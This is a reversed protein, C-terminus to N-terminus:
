RYLTGSYYGIYMGSSTQEGHTYYLTGTYTYGNREVSVKLKDPLPKSSKYVYDRIYINAGYVDRDEELVYKGIEEYSLDLEMTKGNTFQIVKDSAEVIQVESGKLNNADLCIDTTAFATVASSFILLSTLTMLRSTKKLNMIMVIREKLMKKEIFGNCLIPNKRQWKAMNILTKAYTEKKEEQLIGIVRKDCFIEMDRDLFWYLLWMCPNFWHVCLVAVSVIKWVYHLYKIHISEHLLICQLAEEDEIRLEKPLIIVPQFFGYSVPTDIEDSMKIKLKKSPKIMSEIDDMMEQNQMFTSNFAIDSCNKHIKGFHWLFMVTGLIILGIFIVFAVSFIQGLLEREYITINSVKDIYKRFLIRLNYISYNSVISFPVLARVIALWWLACFLEVPLRNKFFRRLVATFLIICGASFSMYLFSM